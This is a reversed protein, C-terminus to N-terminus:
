DIILQTSPAAGDTPPFYYYSLQVYKICSKWELFDERQFGESESLVVTTISQNLDM